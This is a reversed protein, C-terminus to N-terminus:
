NDNNGGSEVICEIGRKALSRQRAVARAKNKYAGEYVKYVTRPEKKSVSEARYGKKRLGALAGTAARASAYPASSLYYRTGSSFVSGKFGSRELRARALAAHSGTPWPGAVVRHTVIKVVGKVIHAEIGRAKLAGAIETCSTELLCLGFRIRWVQKGAAPRDDPAAGAAVPRSSIPEVGSGSGPAEAIEDPAPEDPSVLGTLQAAPQKLGPKSGSAARVARQAPAPRFIEGTFSLITDQAFYLGAGLAIVAAVIIWARGKGGGEGSVPTDPTVTNRLNVIEYLLNIKRM